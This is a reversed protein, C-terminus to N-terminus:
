THSIRSSFDAVVSARSRLDEKPSVKIYEGNKYRTAERFLPWRVIRYPDLKRLVPDAMMSPVSTFLVLEYYQSLYRLFYDVGPRKAMRWGHERSWESHILLDELSLVLTFPAKYQPDEDPLLRPFAPENYYDMTDNLRAKFRDYFLGFGWGSPANPHKSEEDETDWNRGFYVVTTTAFGLFAAYVFNILRNRRRELSSIYSTKPLDGGGGRGGAQADAPEETVNLSKTSAQRQTRAQSIEADLTSPIGQTLDPLPQNPPIVPEPQPQTSGQGDPGLTTNAKDAAIANIDEQVQSYDVRKPTQSAGVAVADPPLHDRPFATNPHSATTSAFDEQLEPVDKGTEQGEVKTTRSADAGEERWAPQIRSRPATTPIKYDAQKYPKKDRAYWRSPQSAVPVRFATAVLGPRVLPLAARRLM